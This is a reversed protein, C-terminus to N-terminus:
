PHFGRLSISQKCADALLLVKRKLTYVMNPDKLDVIEVYSKLERMANDVSTDAVLATEGYYYQIFLRRQKEFSAPDDTNAVMAGSNSCVEAYAKTQEQWYNKWAELELSAHQQKSLQTLGLYISLSLSFATALIGVGKIGIDWKEFTTM